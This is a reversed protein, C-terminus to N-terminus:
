HYLPFNPDLPKMSETLEKEQQKIFDPTPILSPSMGECLICEVRYDYCRSCIWEGDTIM